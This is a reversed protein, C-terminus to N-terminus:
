TVYWDPKSRKSPPGSTSRENCMAIRFAIARANSSNGEEDVGLNMIQAHYHVNACGTRSAYHEFLAVVLGVRVWECGESAKGVRSYAFNDEILQLAAKVAKLNIEQLRERDEPPAQSLLVSFDKPPTFCSELGYRRNPQGSNQVLPDGTNPNFGQFVKRYPAVLITGALLLTAATRGWWIGPPEGPQDISYPEIAGLEYGNM